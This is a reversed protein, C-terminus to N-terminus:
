NTINSVYEVKNSNFCNQKSDLENKLFHKQKEIDSTMTEIDNMMLIRFEEYDIGLESKLKIGSQSVLDMFSKKDFTYGTLIYINEISKMSLFKQSELKLSKFINKLNTELLIISKNITSALFETYFIHHNDTQHLSQIQSICHENSIFLNNQILFYKLEPFSIIGDYDRDIKSFLCRLPEIEMKSLWKVHIKFVNKQFSTFKKFENFNNIMEAIESFSLSYSIKQDFWPHSLAQIISIRSKENPNLLSKLLNFFNPSLTCKMFNIKFDINAIIIQRYLDQLDVRFNYPLKGSAMYYLLIGASWIDSKEDYDGSLVEPAVFAPTGVLNYMRCKGNTGFFRKAFGFDLLKLSNDDFKDGFMFNEPKIDRHCIGRLHIHNIALLIQRFLIKLEPELIRIKRKIRDGLNEGNCNELQFHIKEECEFLEYFKIINPHDCSSLLIVERYFSNIQHQVLKKNITKLAFVKSPFNKQRAVRVIGFEGKGIIEPSIELFKEVETESIKIKAPNGIVPEDMNANKKGLFKSYNKMIVGYKERDQRIVQVPHKSDNLCNGM